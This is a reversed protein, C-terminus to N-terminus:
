ITTHILGMENQLDTERYWIYIDSFWSHWPTYFSVLPISHTLLAVLFIEKQSLCFKTTLYTNVEKSWSVNIKVLVNSSLSISIMAHCNVRLYWQLYTKADIYRLLQGSTKGYFCKRFIKSVKFSILASFWYSLFKTIVSIHHIKLSLLFHFQFVTRIRLLEPGRKGANPSFVSLYPTTKESNHLDSHSFIRVLTVGFVSM